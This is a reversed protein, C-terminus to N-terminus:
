CKEADLAEYERVQETEKARLCLSHPPPTAGVGKRSVSSFHCLRLVSWWSDVVVSVPQRGTTSLMEVLSPLQCGM